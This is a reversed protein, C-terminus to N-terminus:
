LSKVNKFSVDDFESFNLIKGSSKEMQNLGGGETGIWVFESNEAFASVPAYNLEGHLTTWTRFANSENINVCCLKGSYTGIWINLQKDGYITWVSNNPLSFPDM